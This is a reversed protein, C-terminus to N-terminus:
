KQSWDPPNLTLQGPRPVAAIYGLYVEVKYMGTTQAIHNFPYQLDGGFWSFVVRNSPDYIRLGWGFISFQEPEQGQKGLWEVLGTVQQGASLYREFTASAGGLFSLEFEYVGPLLAPPGEFYYKDNFCYVTQFSVSTLWDAMFLGVLTNYQPEIVRWIGSYWKEVLYAHGATEDYSYGVAM